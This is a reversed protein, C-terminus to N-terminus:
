AAEVSVPPLIKSSIKSSRKPPGDLAVVVVEVLDEVDVEPLKSLSMKSRKSGDFEVDEVEDLELEPPLKQSSIKLMTPSTKDANNPPSEEDEDDDEEDDPPLKRSSSKLSKNPGESEEDEFEELPNLKPLIMPLIMSSKNPPEDEEDYEEDDDDDLDPEVHLLTPGDPLFHQELLFDLLFACFLAKFFIILM